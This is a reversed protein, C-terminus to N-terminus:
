IKRLDEVAQAGVTSYKGSRAGETGPKGKDQSVRGSQMLYQLDTRANMNPRTGM